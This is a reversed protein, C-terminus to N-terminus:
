ILGQNKLVGCEDIRSAHHTIGLDFLLQRNSATHHHRTFVVSTNRVHDHMYFCQDTDRQIQRSKGGMWSSRAACLQLHWRTSKLYHFALRKMINHNFFKIWKTLICGARYWKLCIVPCNESPTLGVDGINVCRRVPGLMHSKGEEEAWKVLRPDFSAQRFSKYHFHRQSM